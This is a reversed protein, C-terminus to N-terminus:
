LEEFIDVAGRDASDDASCPGADDEQTEPSRGKSRIADIQCEPKIQPRRKRPLLKLAEAVSERDRELAVLNHGKLSWGAEMVQDATLPVLLIAGCAWEPM